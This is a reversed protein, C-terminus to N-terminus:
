DATVIELTASLQSHLPAPLDDRRYWGLADFKHPEGIAVAAPDVTVAFLVAVWHSPPDARLVNRVLGRGRFRPYLVVVGDTLRIEM